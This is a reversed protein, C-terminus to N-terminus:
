SYLAPGDYDFLVQYGKNIGNGNSGSSGNRNNWLYAEAGGTAYAGYQTVEAYAGPGVGYVQGSFLLNNISAYGNMSLPDIPGVISHRYTLNDVGDGAIDYFNGIFQGDPLFGGHNYSQAFGRPEVEFPYSPSNSYLGQGGMDGAFASADGSAFAYPNGGLSGSAAFSGPMGGGYGGLGGGYNMSNAMEEFSPMMNSGFLDTGGFNGGNGSAFGGTPNNFIPGNRASPGMSLKTPSFQFTYPGQAYYKTGFIGEFSVQENSQYPVQPGSQYGYQVPPMPNPAYYPMPQYAQAPYAAAMPMAYAPMGYMSM